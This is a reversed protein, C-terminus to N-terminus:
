DRLIGREAWMQAEEIKRSAESFERRSGLMKMMSLMIEATRRVATLQIQQRNTIRIRIPKEESHVM